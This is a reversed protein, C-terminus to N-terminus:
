PIMTLLTQTMEDITTIVRASAAFAHQFTILNTTEEDLSVGSIAGRQNNLQQLSLDSADSSTKAQATANGVAFILNAYNDLPAGGTPLAQSQVAQLQTLNGNSGASGDSSAAIKTPDTIAVSFNAAAGAGTATGFFNQGAAGSLDFGGQHVANFNAALGGALDDLASISQPIVHDRVTILGGIQGGQIQNTVDIGQSFIRQMGNADPSTQVAYDQNAVVLPSGNSTTITYGQDTQTVSVDVLGALQKMLVTRQDELTGADKGLKEISAIQTNLTAIQPTIENIQSVAQSVNLNLNSRINTLQTVTGHFDSAINNAATLAAQRQPISTPDTSLQNLSNFFATIDAGLGSTSSGFLSQVQQLASLQAQADGQRSTEDNIRLDLLKDRVSSIQDLDVGRGYYIGAEDSPTAESLVPVERSYGPTNVNAINNTTANLASQEVMLARVAIQMAATLGSM